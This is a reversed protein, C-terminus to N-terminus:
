LYIIYSKFSIPWNILWKQEMIQLIFKKKLFLLNISSFYNNKKYNHELKKSQSETRNFQLNAGGISFFAM